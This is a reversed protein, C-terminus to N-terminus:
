AARRQTYVHGQDQPQTRRVFHEYELPTLDKNLTYIHDGLMAICQGTTLRTMQRIHQPSLVDDHAERLLNLAKGQLNYFFRHKVSGVILAAAEEANGAVGYFAEISQDIPRFCARRNRWTKIARAAYLELERVSAMYYFEDLYFYLPRAWIDRTPSWVYRNIVEFLYDYVLPRTSNDGTSNDFNLLILDASTNLVLETHRNYIAARTGLLNTEIIDALEVAEPRDEKRGIDYLAAVVDELLPATTRTFSTLKHCKPGYVREHQLARDLLGRQRPTLRLPEVKTRGGVDESRGLAVESKRVFQAVLVAPDDTDMWVINIAPTRTLDHFDVARTNGVSELLRWCQGTPEALIGQCGYTALRNLESMISVTKGGGPLGLYLASENRKGDEGFPEMYVPLGTQADIGYKVGKMSSHKRLGWTTKAGVGHSTTNRRVLPAAIRWPPTETFLQAYARQAGKVQEFRLRRGMLERVKAVKEQLRALTPAQLLVAYHVEHLSQTDAVALAQKVSAQARDSRTDERVVKRAAALARAADELQKESRRPNLFVDISLTLDIDSMLLKYWTLPNWTGRVDHVTLITVFPDGPQEPELYTDQPRYIGSWLPPLPAIEVEPVLTTRLIHERLVEPLMAGGEWTLLYHDIVLAQQQAQNALQGEQEKLWRWRWLVRRSEAALERANAENPQDIIKLLEETGLLVALQEARRQIFTHLRLWAEPSPASITADVLPVLARVADLPALQERVAALRPAVDLPRTRAIMRAPFPLAAWLETLDLEIDDLEDYAQANFAQIHFTTM